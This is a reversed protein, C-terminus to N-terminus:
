TPDTILTIFHNIIRATLGWIVRDEWLYFFQPLYGKRFPYNRGHPIMEYPFDESYAVALPLKKYMPQYNVFFDLPVYFAEAVEDPSPKVNVYNDIVAIFPYIILNFPSVMIDLPAIVEINKPSLGLEECTERVAAQMPNADDPEIGGGPFSIEGPQHPLNDSRKEFLLCLQDNLDVLPLLVASQFAEEHGLINPYRGKLNMIKYKYM